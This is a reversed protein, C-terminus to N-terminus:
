APGHPAGGGITEVEGEEEVDFEAGEAVVLVLMGLCPLVGAMGLEGSAMSISNRFICSLTACVLIVSNSVFSLSLLLSFTTRESLSFTM